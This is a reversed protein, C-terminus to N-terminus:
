EVVVAAALASTHTISIHAKLKRGKHWLEPAGSTAHRVEITIFPYKDVGLAKSAAEKAAFIGALHVAPSAKAFCYRLEQATFVKKLFPHSRKKVMPAFRAVEAMDIGVKQM